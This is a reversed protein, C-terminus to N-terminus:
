GNFFHAFTSNSGYCKMQFMGIKDLSIDHNPHFPQGFISIQHSQYIDRSM